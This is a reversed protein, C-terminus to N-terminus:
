HIMKPAWKLTRPTRHITITNVIPEPQLRLKLKLCRLISATRITSILLLVALGTLILLRISSAMHSFMINILIIVCWIVTLLLTPQPKAVQLQRSLTLTTHFIIPEWWTSSFLLKTYNTKSPRKSEEKLMKRCWRKTMFSNSKKEGKNLGVRWILKTLIKSRTPCILNHHWSM